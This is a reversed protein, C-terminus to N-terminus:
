CKIKGGKKLFGYSQVVVKPIQNNGGMSNLFLLEEDERMKYLLSNREFNACCDRDKTVCEHIDCYHRVNQHACSYCCAGHIGDHSIFLKNNKM